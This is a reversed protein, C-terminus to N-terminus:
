DRIPKGVMIKKRVGINKINRKYHYGDEDITLEKDPLMEEAENAPIRPANKRTVIREIADSVEAYVGGIFFVKELFGRIANKGKDSGDSGTVVLKLGFATTKFLVFGLLRDDADVVLIWRDFEFMGDRDKINLRADIRTYTQTYLNFLAALEGEDVDVPDVRRYPDGTSAVWELDDDFLADVTVRAVLFSGDSDM